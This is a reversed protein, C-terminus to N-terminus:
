SRRVTRLCSQRKTSRSKSLGRVTIVTVKAGTTTRVRVARAAYDSSNGVRWGTRGLNSESPVIGVARAQMSHEAAKRADQANALRAMDAAVASAAYRDALMEIEGPSALETEATGRHFVAGRKFSTTGKTFEKM